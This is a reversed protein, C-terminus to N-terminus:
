KKDYVIAAHRSAIFYLYHPSHYGQRSRRPFVQVGHEYVPKGNGAQVLNPLVTIDYFIIGAYKKSTIILAVAEETVHNQVSSRSSQLTDLLLWATSLLEM